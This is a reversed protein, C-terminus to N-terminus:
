ALPNTWYDGEDFGNALKGDIHTSFQPHRKSTSILVWVLIWEPIDMTSPRAPHRPNTTTSGVQLTYPTYNQTFNHTLFVVVHVCASINATSATSLRSISQPSITDLIAISNGYNNLMNITPIEVSILTGEDSSRSCKQPMIAYRHRNNHYERIGFFRTSKKDM